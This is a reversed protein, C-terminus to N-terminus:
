CKLPLPSEHKLDLLAAIAMGETFEASLPTRREVVNGDPERLVLEDALHDLPAAVHRCIPLIQTRRLRGCEDCEEFRQMWCPLSGRAVCREPFGLFFASGRLLAVWALRRELRMRIRTTNPQASKRLPEPPTEIDAHIAEDENPKHSHWERRALQCSKERVTRSRAPLPSVERLM